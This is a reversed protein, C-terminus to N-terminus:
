WNHKWNTDGATEYREAEGSSRHAISLDIGPFPYTQRIM